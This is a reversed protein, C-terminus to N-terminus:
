ACRTVHSNREDDESHNKNLTRSFGTCPPCAILVTPSSVGATRELHERLTEPKLEGIDAELPAVGMNAEYTRNCHLSGKGSSPKGIQADVAGIMRFRPHAHFGYSAGGAGSFMDVVTWRTDM